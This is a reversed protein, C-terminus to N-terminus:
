GLPEEGALRRYYRFSALMGEEGGASGRNRTADRPSRIFARDAEPIQKPDGLLYANYTMRVLLNLAMCRVVADEISSGIVTAGHGHMLAVDHDGVFSAFEEGLADDSVTVSRPYVPVGQLALKAAAVDFAGLIPLIEKGAITLLVAHEPHIHV